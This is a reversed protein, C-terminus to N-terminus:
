QKKGTRRLYEYEVSKRLSTYTFYTFGEIKIGNDSISNNDFYSDLFENEVTNLPKYKLYGGMYLLESSFIIAIKPPNKSRSVKRLRRKVNVFSQKASNSYASINLLDLYPAIINIESTTFDGIYAHIKVDHDSEDALLRLISLSEQYYNFSGKRNCPIKNKRLYTECYYGGLDSQSQKWFEYELDYINFKEDPDKRSKNYPAVENIFFGGSEGTVGINKIGYIKRAKALFNALISNSKPDEIHFRQKDIKDLDYLILTKFNNKSTFTLLDREKALNGLINKFNDVYLIRELTQQSSISVSFFVTFSFFLYRNLM